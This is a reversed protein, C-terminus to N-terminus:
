RANYGKYKYLSKILSKDNKRFPALTSQWHSSYNEDSGTM